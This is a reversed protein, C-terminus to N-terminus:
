KNGKVEPLIMVFEVTECRIAHSYIDGLTM